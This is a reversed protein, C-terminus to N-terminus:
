KTKPCTVIYKLGVKTVKCKKIDKDKKCLISTGRVNACEDKNKKACTGVILLAFFIILLNKM